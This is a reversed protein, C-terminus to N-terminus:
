GSYNPLTAEKWDEENFGILGDDELLLFPRKILMGNNALLQLAEEESMDKLKKSLGLERYLVGSTNFLKNIKLGKAKLFDWMQKIEDYSPPTEAIPINSYAVQNEDLFKKAKRCTGCKNYLYVNIAM